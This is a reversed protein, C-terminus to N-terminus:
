LLFGGARAFDIPDRAGKSTNCTECLIQINRRDNSGGSAIAIIHDVHPRVRALSVACYACRNRQAKKIERVDQISHSGPAARKAARRNRTHVNVADPNAQKWKTRHERMKDKNKVLWAARRVKEKEPHASRYREIRQKVADPNKRYLARNTARIKEPNNKRYESGAAKVMEPNAIQWRRSAVVECALCNGNSVRRLSVHGHLCPDGTFFHKGGESRAQERSVTKV